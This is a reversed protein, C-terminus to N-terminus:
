ANPDQGREKEKEWKAHAIRENRDADFMAKMIVYFIFAFALFPLLTAVYPWAASWM